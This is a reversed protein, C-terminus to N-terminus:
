FWGSLPSRPALAVMLTARDLGMLLPALAV